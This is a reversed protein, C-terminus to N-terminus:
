SGKFAEYHNGSFQGVKSLVLLLKTTSRTLMIIIPIHIECIWSVGITRCKVKIHLFTQRHSLITHAIVLVCFDLWRM